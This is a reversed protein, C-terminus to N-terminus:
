SDNSSLESRRADGRTRDHEDIGADYPISRGTADASCKVASLDRDAPAGAALYDPRPVITDGHRHSRDNSVPFLWTRWSIQFTAYKSRTRSSGRDRGIEGEIEREDMRVGRERERDTHMHIEIAKETGRRSERERERSVRGLIDRDRLDRPSPTRDSGVVSNAREDLGGHADHPIPELKHPSCTKRAGIQYTVTLVLARPRARIPLLLPM